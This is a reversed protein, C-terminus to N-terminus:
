DGYDYDAVRRLVIVIAILLAFAGAGIGAIVSGYTAGIDRDSLLFYTIFQVAFGAVLPLGIIIGIMKLIEVLVRM